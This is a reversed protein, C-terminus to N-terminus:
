PRRLCHFRILVCIDNSGLDYILGLPYVAPVSTRIIELVPCKCPQWLDSPGSPGHQFVSKMLKHLSKKRYGFKFEVRDVNDNVEDEM